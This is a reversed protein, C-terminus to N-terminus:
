IGDVLQVLLGLCEKELRPKILYMPLQFETNYAHLNNGPTLFYYVFFIVCM